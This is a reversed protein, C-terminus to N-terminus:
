QMFPNCIAAKQVKWFDLLIAAMNGGEFGAEVSHLAFAKGSYGSM